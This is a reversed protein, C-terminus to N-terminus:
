ERIMEETLGARCAKRLRMGWPIPDESLEGREQKRGWLFFVEPLVREM